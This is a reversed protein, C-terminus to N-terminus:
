EGEDGSWRGGSAAVTDDSLRGLNLWYTLLPKLEDVEVECRWRFDSTRDTSRHMSELIARLELYTEQPLKFPLLPSGALADLLAITESTWARAGDRPLPGLEIIM